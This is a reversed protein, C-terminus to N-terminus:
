PLVKRVASVIDDPQMSTKDLVQLVGYAQLVDPKLDRAANSILVVPIRALDTHSQLEHLLVIGNPGPMFLDLVIVNPQVRDIMGIAELTNGAREVVCGAAELTRAYSDVLWQDDDIVLVRPKASM